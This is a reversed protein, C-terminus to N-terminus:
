RLGYLLDEASDIDRFDHTSKYLQFLPTGIVKPKARKM